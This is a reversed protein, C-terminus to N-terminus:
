WNSVQKPAPSDHGPEGIHLNCATCSPVMYKPDDGYAKGKVHHICTADGTCVDEIQLTCQGRHEAKNARLIAARIVRYRSYNTRDRWAHSM